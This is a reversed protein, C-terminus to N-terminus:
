NKALVLGWVENAGAKKLIKACENLTAGTTIVDDILIINKNKLNNGKWRYCDKVNKRREVASLNTQSQNNKVKILSKVELYMDLKISIEKALLESQNFGRSKLKRKHLPVPIILTHYAPTIMIQPLTNRFNGPIYEKGTLFSTLAAQRFKKMLFTSAFGGLPQAIKQAYNYKLNKILTALNKDKYDGAIWVGTLDFNNQCNNCFNGFNSNKGCATCNQEEKKKLKNACANCIWTDEERCGVCYIPFITNLLFACLSKTRKKINLSSIM